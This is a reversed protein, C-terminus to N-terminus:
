KKSAVYADALQRMRRERGATDPHSSFAQLLGASSAAAGGSIEQLKQMSRAMAYPDRGNDVTFQFGFNDAENEQKQSYQAGLYTQAIDGLMSDTVTAIRGDLSALGERAAATLYANKIADKTDQNKVHGIEHGVIAMLQDDDMADMLGSYVRVSGDGSAFANVENKIYAKFNLNLGGYHELGKTLRALRQTYPSNAPAITNQADTQVMSQRSLDFVQADTITAATLATMGAQMARETNVNQLVSCGALVFLAAAAVLCYIKKM